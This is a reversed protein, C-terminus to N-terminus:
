GYNFYNKMVIKLHSVRIKSPTFTWMWTWTFPEIAVETLSHPGVIFNSYSCGIFVRTMIYKIQLIAAAVMETTQGVENKLESQERQTFVTRIVLNSYSRGIFITNIIYKQEKLHRHGGHQVQGIESKEKWTCKSLSHLGVSLTQVLDASLYM